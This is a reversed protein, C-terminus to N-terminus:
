QRWGRRYADVLVPRMKTNVPVDASAVLADRGFTFAADIVDPTVYRVGVPLRRVDRLRERMEEASPGALWALHWGWEGFSPVHDHYPLTRFGAADLTRGICVFADKAEYPSTSQVSVVTGAGMRAGLARYFEASYLKALEVTDPDPFDIIVVDAPVAADAVFRDADVNVVHVEATDYTSDDLLSHALHSPQRLTVSAGPTIGSAAVERVRADVLAHRNLTVLEPHTAFLETVAPDLDVLTVERVDGYRLVERLALGDGGGLILVRERRPAIAMPVHVLLEHYIAEDRSSFQLHGNIYFRVDDARKTIVLHQYPSTTSVVIPDRYCRQELTAMVRDANVFAVGLTGVAAVTAAALPTRRRVLPWFYALGGVALLVNVIGLAAAIEPISVHRILVYAFLLAGVLAGVYDMSLIESLNARLTRSYQTNVRLLVPIELGILAGVIFAFGYLVVEYAPSAVFVAYIALTSLGGFVGLLIEIGLFVDILDGVLQRQAVAGVGMAFMMIGIIVFVQEYSSGMLHNGLVGLTYEYIIGCAGMVLMSLALVWRAHRYRRTRDAPM